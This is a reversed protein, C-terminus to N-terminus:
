VTRLLALDMSPVASITGGYLELGPSFGRGPRAHDFGEMLGRARHKEGQTRNM